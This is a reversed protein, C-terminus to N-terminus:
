GTKNSLTEVPDLGIKYYMSPILNKEILEKLRKVSSLIFRIRYYNKDRNLKAKLNIKNLISLLKIQDNKSFQQTNLYFNSNGCVSGDDMFWVSLAIDDIELNNPVIKKDNRYFSRYLETIEPHQKTYFRYAIRKGSSRRAKPRSICINRLKEFKWDVYKKQLFSHNIELFADKRGPIIRLYGDGLVTGIILSKQYQTLSGVTNDNLKYIKVVFSIVIGGNYAM